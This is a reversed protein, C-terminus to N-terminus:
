KITVICDQGIIKVTGIPNEQLKKLHLGEGTREVFMQLQEPLYLFGDEIEVDWNLSELNSEKLVLNSDQIDLDVLNSFQCHNATLNCDELEIATDSLTINKMTWNCDQLEITANCLVSQKITLNSDDADISVKSISLGEMHLNADGARVDMQELRSDKPVFLTVQAIDVDINELTLLDDELTFYFPTEPMDKFVKYTLYPTEQHTSKIAVNSDEVDIKLRHFPELAIPGKEITDDTYSTFKFNKLFDSLFTEKFHAKFNETFNKKFEEKFNKKFTDKDFHQRSDDDMRKNSEEERSFYSQKDANDTTDDQKTKLNHLIEKAAKEPSGLQEIAEQDDNTEEFYEAFYDLVDQKENDQLSFLLQELQHLYKTRTM